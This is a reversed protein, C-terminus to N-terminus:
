LIMCVICTHYGTSLNQGWGQNAVGSVIDLSQLSPWLSRFTKAVKAHQSLTLLQSKGYRRETGVMILCRYVIRHRVLKQQDSTQFAPLHSTKNNHQINLMHEHTTTEPKSGSDLHNRRRSKVKFCCATKEQLALDRRTM